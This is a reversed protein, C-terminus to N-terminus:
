TITPILQEAVSHSDVRGVTRQQSKRDVKRRMKSGPRDEFAELYRITLGCRRKTMTSYIPRGMRWRRITVPALRYQCHCLAVSVQEQTM